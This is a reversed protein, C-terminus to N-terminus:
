RVEYDVVVAEDPDAVEALRRMVESKCHNCDSIVDKLIGELVEQKHETEALEEALEQNDLMGSKQLMDIRKAEMDAILKIASTKTNLAGANTMQDSSDIVEYAKNILRNYHVDASALAEHARSRIAQNNAIMGRWENLYNVVRTRPIDLQKSIETENAGKLYEAVVDNVQDLHETLREVEDKAM